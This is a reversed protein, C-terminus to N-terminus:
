SKPSFAACSKINKAGDSLYGIHQIIFIVFDRIFFLKVAEHKNAVNYMIRRNKVAGKREHSISIM